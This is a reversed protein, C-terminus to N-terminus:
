EPGRKGKDKAHCVDNNQYVLDGPKFSTNRVKSNYYKEMKAKSRAEHIAAQEKIEELLDLNIELAEDNKVMDIETTRLTPMGIKAPIVTKTEYMLSFPTDENSSKIMTRHPWLVHLIEEIWDKSRADLRAKIGEGLSRNEREMLGNAQPHKVSAFRKGPGEPFPGVIDIGWKYFPWPSMIPTLKQQPNRPVLYHVQCDQCERTMKRADAHMTPWCYGTRIAKAVVFRKRAHMSCSGEHIKRLVYNAQLPGICRLWSGLYYKKYLVGNIVAYRRSKRRIARAKEKEVLLAEKTLYEYIPNMWTGGEEEMVALVETTMFGCKSPPKKICMQKAIKLGAILAEYEAENNTADFRFRLAYTFAAGEPNTLILGAGSGDVCSSRDTFLTWPNPLEEEVKMPTDLPNDELREVKFDALIQEKISTRPPKRQQSLYIILEEKEMPATLTPLEAILKKIQKFAAETKGNLKQVDKLCKPSPLNLVTKVKDPCVKIGKANAKYGLFMGEKLNRNIKKQFAKDVLRQYTAGANKLGFPMKSYCFIRQSTIFATKEGDEKAMKIQNYGKYANDDHKKVMVPNSLWSHYHVVKMISADMLKEVEEQLAKNREPAQSRKKQRVPLCGERVNLRHEALHRPVGTMEEPKWAFIDLNRRFLQCLAKRGEETLTSGIVITQELHEPHIAVKIKEEASRIVDSPQAEPGFVM